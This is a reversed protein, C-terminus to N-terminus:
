PADRLRRATEILQMAVTSPGNRRWAMQLAVQPTPGSLARFVVGAPCASAYFAPQLSVGFGAAVLALQTDVDNGETVVMPSFGHERCFAVVIDYFDAGLHRPWSVFVEDALVAPDIREEDALPHHAPLALMLPESVLPEIVLSDAPSAARVIGIDITRDLLSRLQLSTDMQVVDFRVRPHDKTFERMVDPLVGALGTRVSGIAIRGTVGQAAQQAAEVAGGLAHLVRPAAQLFAEGALTLQVQRSTRVFLQVGLDRELTRVQQSLAPQSLHLRSAARTFHLEEALTLFVRLRRTDLDM